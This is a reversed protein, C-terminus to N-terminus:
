KQWEAAHKCRMSREQVAKALAVCPKELDDVWQAESSRHPYRHTKKNIFHTSRDRAHPHIFARGWKGDMDSDVNAGASVATGSSGWGSATDVSRETPDQIKM